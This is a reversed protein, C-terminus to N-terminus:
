QSECQVGGGQLTLLNLALKYLEEPGLNNKARNARRSIVWVNGKIYGKSSDIRDISPRYDPDGKYASFQVRLLPCQDPIIIDEPTITFDQEKKKARYQTDKYLTYAADKLRSREKYKAVKEPNNKQWEVAQANVGNKNYMYWDHNAKKVCEKCHTTHGDKNQANKHFGTTPKEIACKTCVKNNVPIKM